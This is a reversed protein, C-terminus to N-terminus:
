TSQNKQGIVFIGAIASLASIIGIAGWVSEGQYVIYACLLLCLILIIFAFIQGIASQKNNEILYTEELKQRHHIQGIIEKFIIKGGGPTVEDFEKLIHAPLLGQMSIQEKRITAEFILNKVAIQEQEPLKEEIVKLLHEKELEEDESESIIEKESVTKKRSM